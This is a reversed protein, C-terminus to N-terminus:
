AIAAVFQDGGGRSVVFTGVRNGSGLTNPTLGSFDGRDDTNVTGLDERNRSQFPVFQVDYGTNGNAGRLVVFVQHSDSDAAIMGARLGDNGGNTPGFDVSGSVSNVTALRFSSAGHPGDEGQDGSRAFTRTEFPFGQSFDPWDPRPDPRGQAAAAQPLLAAVGGIAVSMAGLRKLLARRNGTETTSSPSQKEIRM